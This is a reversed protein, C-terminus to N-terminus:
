TSRPVYWRAECAIPSSKGEEAELLMCGEADPMGGVSWETVDGIGVVICIKPAVWGGLKM